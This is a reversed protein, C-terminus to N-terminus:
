AAEKAPEYDTSKLVACISVTWVRPDQVLTDYMRQADDLSETALWTDTSFERDGITKAYTSFTVIHM